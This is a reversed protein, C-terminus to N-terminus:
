RPSDGISPCMGAGCTQKQGQVRDIVGRTQDRLQVWEARTRCVRAEHVRTGIRAEKVCVIRNPDNDVGRPRDNVITGQALAATGVLAAAAVLTRLM